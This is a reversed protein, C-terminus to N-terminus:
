AAGGAAPSLADDDTRRRPGDWLPLRAEFVAGREEAERVTLTGGHRHVAQRALAEDDVVLVRLTM